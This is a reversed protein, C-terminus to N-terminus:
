HSAPASSVWARRQEYCENTKRFGYGSSTWFGVTAPITFLLGLRGNHPEACDEAISGHAPKCPEAAILATVVVLFTTLTAIAADAKPADESVTCDPLRSPTGSDTTSPARVTIFSCGLSATLLLACVGRM